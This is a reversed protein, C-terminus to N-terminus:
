EIGWQENAIVDYEKIVELGTLDRYLIFSGTTDCWGIIGNLKDNDPTEIIRKKDSVIM